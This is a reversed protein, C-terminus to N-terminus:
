NLLSQDFDSINGWIVYTRKIGKFTVSTIMEEQLDLVWACYKETNLNKASIKWFMRLRLLFDEDEILSAKGSFGAM